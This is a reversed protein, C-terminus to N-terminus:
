SWSYEFGEPLARIGGGVLVPVLTLHVEDILGERFACGDLSTIALCILKAV